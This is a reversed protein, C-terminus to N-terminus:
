TYIHGQEPMRNTKEVPRETRSVKPSEVAEEFSSVSHQGLLLSGVDGQLTNPLLLPTTLGKLNQAFRWSKLPNPTGKGTVTQAPNAM